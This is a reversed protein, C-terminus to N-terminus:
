STWEGERIASLVDLLRKHAQVDHVRVMATGAYFAQATTALSGELRDDAAAPYIRNIFSKRSAGLLVPQGLANFEKLRRLITLNDRHSKGFGVGPDIIIRSRQIGAQQCHEIREEFFVLIDNMVDTYQPNQQMTKPTGQMHMLILPADPHRLAVETMAADMRLASIDNIIDAGAALAAEAVAAKYTDISILCDSTRRLAKIVPIVRRLEEEASVEAAGPRTSEGGIDIIQAGQEIMQQAHAVAADLRNWKSGDSFSDPTVNLIGMLVPRSFDLQTNRCQMGGTPSLVAQVCRQIDAGIADLGFISQRALKTLLKQMTVVSGLLLVDSRPVTGNVVGRAVAADGGISLLEQKIINAAGVHVNHLKICLPLCKGAMLEIGGSTCGIRQLEARAVNMTLMEITRNM